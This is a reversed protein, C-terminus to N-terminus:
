CKGKLSHTRKALLIAKGFFTEFINDTIQRAIGAVTPKFNVSTLVEVLDVFDTLEEKVFKTDLNAFFHIVVNVETLARKGGDKLLEAKIVQLVSAHIKIATDQDFFDELYRNRFVSPDLLRDIVNTIDGQQAASLTDSWGHSKKGSTDEFIKERDRRLGSLDIQLIKNRGDTGLVCIMNDPGNNGCEGIIHRFLIGLCLGDFGQNAFKNRFESEGEELSKGKYCDVILNNFPKSGHVYKLSFYLQKENKCVYMRPEPIFIQPLNELGQLMILNGIKQSIIAIVRNFLAPIAIIDKDIGGLCSIVHEAIETVLQINLARASDTSHWKGAHSLYARELEASLEANKAFFGKIAKFLSLKLLEESKIYQKGVFQILDKILYSPKKILAKDKEAPQAKLADFFSQGLLSFTLGTKIIYDENEDTIILGVDTGGLKQGKYVIKLDKSGPTPLHEIEKITHILALPHHQVLAAAPAGASPSPAIVKQPYTCSLKSSSFSVPAASM